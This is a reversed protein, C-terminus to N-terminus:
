VLSILIIGIIIIVGGITQIPSIKEKLFIKAFIITPLSFAGSLVAVISTKSTLSYGSSVALYAITECLGILILFKWINNKIALLNIKQIKTILLIFITMFLYMLMANILWDKGGIFKDWFLTWFAALLTALAVEKFGSVNTFSVRKKRLAEIDINIILVGFFLIVLSIVLHESVVERFLLISLIATLGSFSAFVPNLVAVQGKGFGRYVLLYIIAKLVGFFILLIWSEFNRPFVIEYGGLFFEYVVFILFLLTGFIHAWALSAMDGIEDITKKAFLDAFGWGLMGGMGALIAIFLEKEM